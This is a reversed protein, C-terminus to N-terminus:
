SLAGVAGSEILSIMTSRVREVVGEELAMAIEIRWKGGEEARSQAPCICGKKVGSLENVEFKCNGGAPFRSLTDAAKNKM